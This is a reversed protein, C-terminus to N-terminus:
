REGFLWTFLKIWIVSEWPSSCYMGNGVHLSVLRGSSSYKPMSFPVDRVRCKGERRGGPGLYCGVSAKQRMGSILQVIGSILSM